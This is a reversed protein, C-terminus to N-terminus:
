QHGTPAGPPEGSVRARRLASLTAGCRRVRVPRTQGRYAIGRKGLLLVDDAHIGGDHLLIGVLAQPHPEVAFLPHYQVATAGAQLQTLIAQPHYARGKMEVIAWRDREDDLVIHDPKPAEQAFSSCSDCDVVTAARRPVRLSCAGRRCRSSVCSPPCM